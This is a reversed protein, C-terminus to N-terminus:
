CRPVANKWLGDLSIKLNGLSLKETGRGAKSIVARAYSAGSPNYNILTECVIGKKKLKPYNSFLIVGALVM